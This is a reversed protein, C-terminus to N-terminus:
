YIFIKHLSSSSLVVSYTPRFLVAVIPTGNQFDNQSFFHRTCYSFSRIPFAPTFTQIKQPLTKTKYRTNRFLLCQVSLLKVPPLNFHSVNKTVHLICM